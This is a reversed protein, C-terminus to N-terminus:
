RTGRSVQMPQGYLTDATDTLLFEVVGAVDNTSTLMHEPMTEVLQDLFEAPLHGTLSTKMLGPAVIHVRV